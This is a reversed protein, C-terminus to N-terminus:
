MSRLKEAYSLSNRLIFVKAVNSELLVQSFIIDSLTELSFNFVSLDNNREHNM